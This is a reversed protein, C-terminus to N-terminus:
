FHFGKDVMVFCGIPFLCVICSIVSSFSEWKRELLFDVVQLGMWLRHLYYSMTPPAYPEDWFLCLQIIYNLLEDLLLFVIAMLWPFKCTMKLAVVTIGQKPRHLCSRARHHTEEYFDTNEKPLGRISLLVHYLLVFVCLLLPSHVNLFTHSM